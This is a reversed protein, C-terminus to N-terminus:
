MIDLPRMFILIFHVQTRNVPSKYFDKYCAFLEQMEMELIIIYLRQMQPPHIPGTKFLLHRCMAFHAYQPLSTLNPFLTEWEWLRELLAQFGFRM